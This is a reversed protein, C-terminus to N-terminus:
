KQNPERVTKNERSLQRGSNARPNEGHIITKLLTKDRDQKRQL